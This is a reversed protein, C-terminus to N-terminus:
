QVAAEGGELLTAAFAAMYDYDTYEEVIPIPLELPECLGNLTHIARNLSLTIRESTKSTVSITNRAGIGCTVVANGRLKEYLLEDDANVVAAFATLREPIRAGKGLVVISSQAAIETLNDTCIVECKPFMEGDLLASINVKGVAIVM